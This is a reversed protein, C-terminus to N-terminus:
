IGYLDERLKQDRNVKVMRIKSGRKVKKMEVKGRTSKNKRDRREVGKVDGPGFHTIRNKKRDGEKLGERGTRLSTKIPFLRGKQESGLGGTGNWGASKLMRFGLNAESIGFGPNREIKDSLGVCMQHTVSALHSSKLEEDYFEECTDCLARNSIGVLDINERESSNNKSLSDILSVIHFLGKQRLLNIVKENNFWIGNSVLYEIVRTNGQVCAIELPTWGYKDKCNLDKLNCSRLFDVDDSFAAEIIKKNLHTDDTIEVDEEDSSLEVIQAAEEAKVDESAEKKIELKDSTVVDDYFKRIEDGDLRHDIPDKVVKFNDDSNKARVFKKFNFKCTSLIMWNPHPVAPFTPSEGM